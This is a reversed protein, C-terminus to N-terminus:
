SAAAMAKRKARLLRQEERGCTRCCRRGTPSINTNELTYEHGNICHTKRANIAAPSLPSRLTNERQTVAELHDPNCCARHPCADGGMCTPDANHCTHDLVLGVPVKRGHAKEWAVVHAGVLRGDVYVNVYGSRNPVRPLFICATM